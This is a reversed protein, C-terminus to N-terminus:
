NSLWWNGVETHFRTLPRFPPSVRPWTTVRLSVALWSCTLLGLSIKPDQGGITRMRAPSFKSDEVKLDRIIRANSINSREPKFNLQCHLKDAGNEPPHPPFSIFDTVNLFLVDLRRNPLGCAVHSQNLDRSRILYYLYAVQRSIVTAQL